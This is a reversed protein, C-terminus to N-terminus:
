PTFRAYDVLPVFFLLGMRLTPRRQKHRTKRLWLHAPKEPFGTM